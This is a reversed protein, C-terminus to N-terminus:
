LEKWEATVGRGSWKEVADRIYDRGELYFGAAKKAFVDNGAEDIWHLVTAKVPVREPIWAGEDLALAMPHPHTIEVGDRNGSRLVRVNSLNWSRRFQGTGANLNRDISQKIHSILEPLANRWRFEFELPKDFGNGGM